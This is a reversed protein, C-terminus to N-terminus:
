GRTPVDDTAPDLGSTSPGWRDAGPRFAIASLGMGALLHRGAIPAVEAATVLGALPPQGLRAHLRAADHGDAGLLRPGRAMSSAALVGLVPREDLMALDLAMALDQRETDGDVVQFRVSSGRPVGGPILLGGGGRDITAVPRILYDGRGLTKRNGDPAIGILPRAALRSRDTTALEGLVDDFVESAPRGSLATIRENATGTVVLLPGVGRGAHAIVPTAEIAGELAFGVTGGTMVRDDAILINTGPQSGGSVLGGMIPTGEPVAAEIVRPLTPLGAGFPDCFLGIMRPPSTLQLRSRVLYRSWVDSPGDLHDFAFSRARIGPGALGFATLTPGSHHEVGGCLVGCATLGLISSAKTLERVIGVAEPLAAAHHFSGIVVVLASPAALDEALREAVGWAATRTDSHRDVAASAAPQAIPPAM